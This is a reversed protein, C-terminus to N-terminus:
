TRYDEWDISDKRHWGENLCQNIFAIASVYFDTFDQMDTFTYYIPEENGTEGLKFKIPLSQGQTQVALDYAAKFNFQNESSLWVNIDRWVMCSLIKEDTQANIDSIIADKIEEFTLTPKQKKYFYIEYWLAHIGDEEAQCDYAIILRSRDNRIPTFTELLGYVRNM